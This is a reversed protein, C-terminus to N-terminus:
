PRLRPKAVPSYPAPKAGRRSGPISRHRHVRRHDLPPDLLAPGVRLDRDLIQAAIAVMVGRMDDRAGEAAFAPYLLVLHDVLGQAASHAVFQVRESQLRANRVFLGSM